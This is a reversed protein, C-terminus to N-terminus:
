TIGFVFVFSSADALGAASHSGGTLRPSPPQRRAAGAGEARCRGSAGGGRAAAAASVHCGRWRRRRRSAPGARPAPLPLNRARSLARARASEPATGRLAPHPGAAARHRLQGCCACRAPEQCQEPRQVFCASYFFFFLMCLVCARPMAGPAACLMCLLFLLFAHLARLSMANSRASCLAHANASVARVVGCATM